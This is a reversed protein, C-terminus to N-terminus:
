PREGSALGSATGLFVQDMRDWRFDDLLRSLRREMRDLNLYHRFRSKFGIGTQRPQGPDLEWPHFYFVGPQGESANVRRLAWRYFCYPYIRFFGGGGMPLNRGLMRSTTIPVELLGDSAHLFPFRSAEPMGYLDHRVPYISSSYKYGADHLVDLAWLNAAGISFSAARYGKVECGGADELLGKTRTVDQRFDEPDTETVRVHAYGHSALEHGSAVIRSILVPYREAIWGLVFFTGRVGHQAFLELIRDTNREVRSPLREWEERSIYSEFASVQFYDEVDVTMANRVPSAGVAEEAGIM